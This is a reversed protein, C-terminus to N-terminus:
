FTVHAGPTKLNGLDKTNESTKRGRRSRKERFSLVAMAAQVLTPWWPSSCGRHDLKGM